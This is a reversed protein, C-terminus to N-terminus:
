GSRRDQNGENSAVDLQDDDQGGRRWGAIDDYHYLMRDRPDLAVLAVWGHHFLQQLLSHRDIITGIRDPPADIVTLLRKPEHYPTRGNFVTQAPLGIRLDSWAGTM